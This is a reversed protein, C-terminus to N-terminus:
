GADGSGSGCYGNMWGCARCSGEQRNAGEVVLLIDM